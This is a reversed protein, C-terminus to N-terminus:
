VETLATPYDRYCGNMAARLYALEGALLAMTPAPLHSQFRTANRTGLQGNIILGITKTAETWRVVFNNYQNNNWVGPNVFASVSSIGGTNNNYYYTASWVNGANRKVVLLTLQNITTSKYGVWYVASDSGLDTHPMFKFSAIVGDGITPPALERKIEGHDYTNFLRNHPGTFPTDDCDCDQPVDPCECGCVSSSTCDSLPTYTINTPNGGGLDTGVTRYCGLPHSYQGAEYQFFEPAPNLGFDFAYRQPCHSWTILLDIEEGVALVRSVAQPHTITWDGPVVSSMQAVPMELIVEPDFVGVQIPLVSIRYQLNLSGPGSDLGGVNRIRLRATVPEVSGTKPLFIARSIDRGWGFNTYNNFSYGVYQYSKSAVNNAEFLACNNSEMQSQDQKTLTLNMRVDAGASFTGDAVKSQVTRVTLRRVCCPICEALAGGCCCAPDATLSGGVSLLGGNYTLLSM